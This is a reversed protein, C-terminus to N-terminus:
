KASEGDDDGDLEGGSQGLDVLGAFLAGDRWQRRLSWESCSRGGSSRRAALRRRAEAAIEKM